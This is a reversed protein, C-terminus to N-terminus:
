TENESLKWGKRLRGSHAKLQGDCDWWLSFRGVESYLWLLLRVEESLENTLTAELVSLSDDFVEPLSGRLTAIDNQLRQM